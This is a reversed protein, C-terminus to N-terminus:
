YQCLFDRGQLVNTQVDYAPDGEKGLLLREGSTAYEFESSSSSDVQVALFEHVEHETLTKLYEILVEDETLEGQGDQLM